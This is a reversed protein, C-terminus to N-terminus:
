EFSSHPSVIPIKNNQSAAFRFVMPVSHEITQFIDGDHAFGALVAAINYSASASNTGVQSSGYKSYLTNYEGSSGGTPLRWNKPCIDQSANSSNSSVCITGASAACYNYYVGIKGSGSGFNTTTSNKDNAYIGATTYSNAAELNFYSLSSAPM